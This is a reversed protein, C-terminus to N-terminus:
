KILGLMFNIPRSRSQSIKWGAAAALKEFDELSRWTLIAPMGLGGRRTPSDPRSISAGLFADAPSLSSLVKLNMAVIVDSAYDFLGGESSIGLISEEPLGKLLNELALTAGWNYPFYTLRAKLGHLPGGEALLAGLAAEAFHAGESELDLVYIEIERGALSSPDQKYLLILANLSDMSPGGAINILHLPRSPGAALLPRLGEALIEVMDQMRLAISLGSANLGEILKHDLPTNYGPGLTQPSLKLMYTTLSDMYGGASRLLGRGILSRKLVMPIMKRQLWLALKGQSQQKKAFREARAFLDAEDADLHFAPHTVDIVPLELGSDSIAYCVGPIKKFPAM